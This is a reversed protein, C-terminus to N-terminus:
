SRFKLSMLFAEKEEASKLTKLTREVEQTQYNKLKIAMKLIKKMREYATVVDIRDKKIDKEYKKNIKKISQYLFPKFIKKEETSYAGVTSEYYVYESEFKNMLMTITDGLVHPGIYYGKKEPEKITGENKYLYTIGGTNAVAQAYTTFSGIILIGAIILRM